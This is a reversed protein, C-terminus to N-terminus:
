AGCGLREEPRTDVEAPPPGDFVVFTEGLQSGVVRVATPRGGSRVCTLDGHTLVSGPPVVAVEIPKVLSLTAQQTASSGTEPRAVAALVDPRQLETAAVTAGDMALRVPGLRLIRDGPILDAPLTKLSIADLGAPLKAIADGPALADGTAIACGSPVVSAAPLWLVQSLRLGAPEATAGVASLLAKVAALTAPGAEGDADVGHGLRQLETQLAAVDPGTTGVTIDRWLPVSTALNLVPTGDIAVLSGGSSIPQGITCSSATVRGSGPSRLTREPAFTVVADVARDDTFPSTMLPVSAPAAGPSLSEPPRPLILATALVGAAVLALGPLVWLAFRRM